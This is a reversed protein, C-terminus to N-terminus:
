TDFLFKTMDFDSREINGFDEYQHVLEIQSNHYVYWGHGAAVMGDCTHREPNYEDWEIVPTNCKRLKIIRGFEGYYLGPTDDILSKVRDGVQFDM